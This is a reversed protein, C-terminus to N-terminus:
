LRAPAPIERTSGMMSESRSSGAKAHKVIKRHSDCRQTGPAAYYAGGDDIQVDMLAVPGGTEELVVGGYHSCGDVAYRIEREVFLAAIDIYLQAFAGSVHFIESSNFASNGRTIRNRGSM